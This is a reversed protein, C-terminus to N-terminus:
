TLNPPDNEEFVAFSALLSTNTCLGAVAAKPLLQSEPDNSAPVPDSCHMPQREANEATKVPAHEAHVAGLKEAVAAVFHAESPVM